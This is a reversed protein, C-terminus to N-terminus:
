RGGGRLAVQVSREFQDLVGRALRPSILYRVHREIGDSEISKLGASGMMPDFFEIRSVRYDADADDIGGRLGTRRVVERGLGRLLDERREVTMATVFVAHGPAGEWDRLCMVVPQGARLEEVAISSASSISLADLGLALLDKGDIRVSRIDLAGADAGPRGRALARVIELDTAAQCETEGYAEKFRAVFEEQLRVPGKVRTVMECCAAWCWDSRRQEVLGDDRVRAEITEGGGDDRPTSACGGLVQLALGAGLACSALLNRAGTPGSPPRSDERAM